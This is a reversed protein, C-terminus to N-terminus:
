WVLHLGSSYRGRSGFFPSGQVVFYQVTVASVLVWAVLAREEYGVSCSVVWVDGGAAWLSPKRNLFCEIMEIVLLQTETALHGEM